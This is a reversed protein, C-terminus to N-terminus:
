VMIAEDDDSQGSTGEGEDEGFNVAHYQNRVFRSPPKRAPGRNKTKIANHHLLSSEGVIIKLLIM